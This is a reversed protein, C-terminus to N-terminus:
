ANGTGRTSPDARELVEAALLAAADRVRDEVSPWLHAYTTLTTTSKAHGLARQVAVVDCGSAILGSAFYHRLDHLRVDQVGARTLTVRWRHSLTNPHPPADESAPLCGTASSAWDPTNPSCRWCPTPVAVSRESNYKPLRIDVIGGDLRQVQRRVHVQRRLFDVDGIQLAVAEGLRLGAFACLGVFARFRPDAADLIRRVVEPTPISMAAERKRLRPLRVQTSPDHAIMGDRVAARFVTRVNVFRTKITGPALARPRTATPVTMSKVWAEVHSPRIRRLDVDAFTTSRVALSMAKQTGNTWLQDREWATFYGMFSVKGAEPDVWRGHDLADLQQRRWRVADIQKDFAREHQRGTEPNRYRARWSGGRRSIGEPM